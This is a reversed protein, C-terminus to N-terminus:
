LLSCCSPVVEDTENRFFFYLVIRFQNHTLYLLGYCTLMAEYKKLYDKQM